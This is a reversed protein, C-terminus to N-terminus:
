GNPMSGGGSNGPLKEAMQEHVRLTTPLTKQAFDRIAPDTSKEFALKGADVETMGAQAAKSVFSPAATAASSVGALSFFLLRQSVNM